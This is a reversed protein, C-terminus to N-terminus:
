WHKLTDEPRRRQHILLSESRSGLEQHHNRRSTDNWGVAHWPVADEQIPYTNCNNHLVHASAPLQCFMLRCM